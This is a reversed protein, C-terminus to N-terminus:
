FKGSFILHTHSYYSLLAYIFPSYKATTNNISHFRTVLYFLLMFVGLICTDKLGINTQTIFRKFFVLVFLWLITDRYTNVFKRSFNIKQQYIEQELGEQHKM